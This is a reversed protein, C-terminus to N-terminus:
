LRRWWRGILLIETIYHYIGLEIHKNRLSLFSMFVTSHLLMKLHNPLLFNELQNSLGLELFTIGSIFVRNDTDGIALRATSSLFAPKELWWIFSHTDLLLNM